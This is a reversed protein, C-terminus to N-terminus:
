RDLGEVRYRVRLDKLLAELREGERERALEIRVISEVADLPLAEAAHRADVRVLHQGLTSELPGIWTGADAAFVADAFGTGLLQRLETRSM